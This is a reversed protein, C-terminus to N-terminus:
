EERLGRSSVTSLNRLLKVPLFLIIRRNETAAKAKTVQQEDAEAFPTQEVPAYLVQTLQQL